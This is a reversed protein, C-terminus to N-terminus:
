YDHPQDWWRQEHRGPALTDRGNMHYVKNRLEKCFRYRNRAYSIQYDSAEDEEIDILYDFWSAREQDMLNQLYEIEEKTFDVQPLKDRDM